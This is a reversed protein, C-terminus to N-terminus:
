CNDNQVEKVKLRREETSGIITNLKVHESPTTVTPKASSIPTDKTQETRPTETKTEPPETIDSHHDIHHSITEITTTVKTSHEKTAESSLGDSSSLPLRHHHFSSYANQFSTSDVSHIDPMYFLLSAWAVIFMSLLVILLCAERSKLPSRTKQVPRGPKGHYVPLLSSM